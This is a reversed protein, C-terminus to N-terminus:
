SHLIWKGPSFKLGIGTIKGKMLATNWKGISIELRTPSGVTKKIRLKQSM